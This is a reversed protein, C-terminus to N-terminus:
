SPKMVNVVNGKKMKALMTNEIKSCHFIKDALRIVKRFYFEPANGGNVNKGNEEKDGM